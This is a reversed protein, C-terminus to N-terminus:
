CNNKANGMGSTKNNAIQILIVQMLQELMERRALPPLM